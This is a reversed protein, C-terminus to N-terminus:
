TSAGCGVTGGRAVVRLAAPVLAGVPAFVIAADFQVPPPDDSAGAWEAGLERSGVVLSSGAWGWRPSASRSRGPLRGYKLQVPPGVRRDILDELTARLDDM